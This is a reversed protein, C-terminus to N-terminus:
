VRSEGYKDYIELEAIFRGKLIVAALEDDVNAYIGDPLDVHDGVVIVREFLGDLQDAECNYVDLINM